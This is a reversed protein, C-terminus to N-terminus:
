RHLYTLRDPNRRDHRASENKDFELRERTWRDVFMMTAGQIKFRKEIRNATIWAFSQGSYIWHALTECANEAIRKM